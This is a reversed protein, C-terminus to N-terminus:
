LNIKLASDGWGHDFRLTQRAINAKCENQIQEATFFGGARTIEANRALLTRIQSVLNQAAPTIPKQMTDKQKLNQNCTSSYEFYIKQL